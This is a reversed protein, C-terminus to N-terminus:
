IAAKSITTIGAGQLQFLKFSHITIECPQQKINWFYVVLRKLKKPLNGSVLSTSFNSVGNWNYQILNLPVRIFQTGENEDASEIQMVANINLPQPAQKCSFSIDAQLPKGPSLATDLVEFFNYYEFTGKIPAYNQNEFIARRVIPAKRKLLRFGWQEESAIENYYATYYPKDQRYALAYDTNMQLAEPATMHNLKVPSNYNLFGYFFERVRHGGITIGHKSKTQEQLLINYFEKPMTEYVRWPHNYLNFQFFWQLAIVLPVAISASQVAVNSEDVLFALSLMFVVYFFLGTRDEPYNLGLLVKLLYFGLILSLLVFFSLVFKNNLLLMWGGRKLKVVFVILMKLALVVVIGNVLRSKVLLTDILSVFTVQWYSEGAGYYLAGAAKLFLGYKVWFLLLAVHLLLAFIVLPKLIQKHLVLYIGILLSIVGLVPVMTLNASLALQLWVLTLFFYRLKSEKFYLFLTSFAAILFSMSLGYGRCLAFYATFNYAGILGAALLVKAKTSQMTKTLNYTSVLLIVTAVIDPLRLALPSSGFAKYSVWSSLNTLFHGNADPHAYFPIFDEPQIYFFFSAVEDHSFPVLYCRLVVVMLVLSAFLKYWLSFAATNNNM